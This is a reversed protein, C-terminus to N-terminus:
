IPGVLYRRVTPGLTAIVRERPMNAAPPLGLIYRCLAFGLLQSAVLAARVAFEGPPAARKLASEVQEAFIERVRDAAERSSTASRLLITLAGGSTESEWLDLFHAVLRAGLDDASVDALDPLRLDFATARAFLGEKNEFYRMVLAPDAGARRAIDRITAGEFGTEAFAARAANLIASRTRDSKSPKPSSDNM